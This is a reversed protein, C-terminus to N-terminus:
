RPAAVPTWASYKPRTSPSHYAIGPLLFLWAGQDVYTSYTKFAARSLTVNARHQPLEWARHGTQMIKDATPPADVM